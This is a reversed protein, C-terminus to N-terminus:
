LHCSVLWSRHLMKQADEDLEENKAMNFTTLLNVRAYLALGKKFVLFLMLHVPLTRPALGTRTNM